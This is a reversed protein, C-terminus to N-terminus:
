IENFFIVKEEPDRSAGYNETLHPIVVQTNCKPGLTGSEFLPKTYFVCRRDVYLRALKSRFHRIFQITQITEISTPM